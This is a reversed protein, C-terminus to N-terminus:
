RLIVLSFWLFVIIFCVLVLRKLYQISKYFIRCRDFYRSIHFNIFIKVCRFHTLYFIIDFIAEYEIVFIHFLIYLLGSTSMKCIVSLYQVSNCNIGKWQGIKDVYGCGKDNGLCFLVIFFNM